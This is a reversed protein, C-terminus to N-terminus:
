LNVKFGSTIKKKLNELIENNLPINNFTYTVKRKRPEKLFATVISVCLFFVPIWFARVLLM